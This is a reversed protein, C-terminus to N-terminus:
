GVARALRLDSGGTWRARVGAASAGRPGCAPPSARPRSRPPRGRGRGAGHRRARCWLLMARARAPSRRGSATGATSWAACPTSARCWRGRPAARAPPRGAAAAPRGPAGRLPGADPRGRQGAHGGRRGPPGPRAPRPPRRRHLHPVRPHGRRLRARSPCRCRGRRPDPASPWWGAPSAPPPTTPTARSRPPGPWCTTPRGACAASPTRRWWAPASPPRRRGSAAASRSATAASSRWGTSAASARRWRGASWTRPTRPAARGRGRRDGAREAAGAPAVGGRRQRPRPRRGPLRLGPRPQGLHGPRQRHASSSLWLPGGGRGRHRGAPPAGAGTEAIATDPDKLGHGTLVCVVREGPCSTAPRRARAAARGGLGGVGARLLHGGRGGAPPLGRPDPLRDGGGRRRGVRAHVGHGPRRPGSRRHPDGHGRDGPPGRRGRGGAARRGLGPVRLPAAPQAVREAERYAQFGLWYASINGANGVPICLADPADGLDDCVEFAATRQGDIRYENLSNVLALPHREVLARVVRLAEDFGGDLALVQAGHALAQALKGAAIKGEPIVVAATMGARAAYAAASASTNGTSACIVAQAGEEVAKSVALTM